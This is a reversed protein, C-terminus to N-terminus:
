ANHEIHATHKTVVQKYLIDGKHNGGLANYTDHDHAIANFEDITIIHDDALLAYCENYFDKKYMALIGAKMLELNTNIETITATFEKDKNDYADLIPKIDERVKKSIDEKLQENKRTREEKFLTDFRKYVLTILTVILGFGIQVWYKIIWDLM